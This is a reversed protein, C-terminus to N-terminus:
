DFASNLSRSYASRTSQLNLIEVHLFLRFFVFHAALFHTCASCPLEKGKPSVSYTLDLNVQEGSSVQERQKVLIREKRGAEKAKDLAQANPVVFVTCDWLVNESAM